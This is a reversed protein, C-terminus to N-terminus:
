TYMTFIHSLIRMNSRQGEAMQIFSGRSYAYMLLLSRISACPGDHYVYVKHLGSVAVEGYSAAHKGQLHPSVHASPQPENQSKEGSNTRRFFARVQHMPHETHKHMHTISKVMGTRLYVYTACKERVRTQALSFPHKM